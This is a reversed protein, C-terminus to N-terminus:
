EEIYEPESCDDKCVPWVDGVKDMADFIEFEIWYEPTMMMQRYSKHEFKVFPM